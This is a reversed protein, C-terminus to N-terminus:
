AQRAFADDTRKASRCSRRSETPQRSLRNRARQLSAIAQAYSADPLGGYILNVLWRKTGSLSAVERHWRGLIHHAWDYSPNLALARETEEKVLRSLVIKQRTDAYTALKGHCIALSLVNVANDPEIRVAREAYLLAETVLAKQRERDMTDETSDSLQRAIKQLIFPDDPRTQELQRFLHLAAQSDYRAEAALAAQILEEAAILPPAFNILVLLLVILTRV